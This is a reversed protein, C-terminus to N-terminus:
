QGNTFDSVYFHDSRYSGRVRNDTIDFNVPKDAMWPILDRMAYSVAENTASIHISTVTTIQDAIPEIILRGTLDPEPFHIITFQMPRVTCDFRALMLNVMYERDDRSPPLCQNLLGSFGGVSASLSRRRLAILRQGDILDFVLAEGRFINRNSAGSSYFAPSWANSVNWVSSSTYYDGNYAIQMTIVFNRSVYTPGVALWIIAITALSATSVITVARKM